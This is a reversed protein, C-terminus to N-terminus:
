KTSISYTSSLDIGWANRETTKKVIVEDQGDFGVHTAIQTPFKSTIIFENFVRTNKGITTEVKKDGIPIGFSIMFMIFSVVLSIYPILTIEKFLFFISVIGLVGM